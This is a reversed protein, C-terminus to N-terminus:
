MFPYDDYARKEGYGAGLLQYCCSRERRACRVTGADKDVAALALSRLATCSTILTVLAHGLDPQTADSPWPVMRKRFNASLDLQTLHPQAALPELLAAVGGETLSTARMKLGCLGCGSPRTLRAACPSPENMEEVATVKESAMLPAIDTRIIQASFRPM